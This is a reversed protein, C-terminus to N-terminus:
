GRRADALREATVPYGRDDPICLWREGDREEIWPTIPDVPHARRCPRDRTAISGLLALRELNRRTPFIVRHRGADADALLQRGDGVGGARERRRRRRADAGAPAEAIFFCTDFNRTERM